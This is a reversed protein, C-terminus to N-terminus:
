RDGTARAHRGGPAGSASGTARRASPSAPRPTPPRARPVTEPRGISDVGVRHHELLGHLATSEFLGKAEVATREERPGIEPVGDGELAPDIPPAVAQRREMAPGARFGDM